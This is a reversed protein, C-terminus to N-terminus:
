GNVGPAGPPIHAAVVNRIDHVVLEFDLETGDRRLRFLATGRAPTDRPPVENGGRLRTRFSRRRHSEVTTQEDSSTVASKTSDPTMEPTRPGTMDPGSERSCAATVALVAGLLLRTPASRWGRRLAANGSVLAVVIRAGPGMRRRELALPAPDLGTLPLSRASPSLPPPRVPAPSPRVSPWPSHCSSPRCP